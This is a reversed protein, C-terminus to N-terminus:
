FTRKSESKVDDREIEDLVEALLKWKPSEELVLEETFFFFLFSIYSIRYFFNAWSSMYLVTGRGLSSDPGSSGSYLASVM